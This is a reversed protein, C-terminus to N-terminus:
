DSILGSRFLRYWFGVVVLAVIMMLVSAAAGYGYLNNNFTQRVIAITLLNNYRGLNDSSFLSVAINYPGFGFFNFILGFMNTVVLIPTLFPLTIYRFKQWTGAGDMAAAEYLDEPVVQLTALYQVAMFPIGRWVAPIILATRSNPGILWSIPKEVVHLWDVLIRNALGGRQLWIFQFIIGVVFTPVVWPLLVLTRALGRWKFDRNLLLALVLGLITTGVQVWLLFYFSNELAQTLGKILADGGGLILGKLIQQYHQLGVFPARLPKALYQVDVNLFSMYVAEATPILHVLLMIFVAPAIFAYAVRYRRVRVWLSEKKPPIVTRQKAAM